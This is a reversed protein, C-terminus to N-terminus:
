MTMLDLVMMRLVLNRKRAMKRANRKSKMRLDFREDDKSFCDIREWSGDLFVETSCTWVLGVVAAAATAVHGGGGVDAHVLIGDDRAWASM